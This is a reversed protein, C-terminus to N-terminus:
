RTDVNASGETTATTTSGALALTVCPQEAPSVPESVAEALVETATGTHSLRAVVEVRDTSAFGEAAMRNAADLTVTQTPQTPQRVVALPMGGGVPRAFVMLWAAADAAATVTVEILPRQPDLRRRALALTETLLARRGATLPQRLTRALLWAGGTFDNQRLAAMALLELMEPHEPHEAFVRDVIAQTDPGVTGGAALYSAQAWAVDVQLQAGVLSHLSAFAAAAGDFDQQRLRAHGLHFWADGDEPERWTRAALAAALETLQEPPMDGAMLQASDALLRARPEGWLGYLALALAALALAGGLLAAPPPATVRGSAAPPASSVDAVDLALEEELAAVTEQPLAQATADVLLEQREAAFVAEPTPSEPRPPRRRAGWVMAAVALAAFAVAGIWAIM